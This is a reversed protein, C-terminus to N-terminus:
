FSNLLPYLLTSMLTTVLMNCASRDRDLSCVAAFVPRLGLRSSVALIGTRNCGSLDIQSSTIDSSDIDRLVQIRVRCSM